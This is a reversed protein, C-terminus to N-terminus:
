LSNRKIFYKILGKIHKVLKKHEELSKGKPDEIEWYIVKKNGKLFNPTNEPETMLIIKDFNKIMEPTVQNRQNESVDFGEEKLSDIVEKALPLEKIKQGEHEYVKTGASAVEHNSMKKFLTEAIQGYAREEVLEVE